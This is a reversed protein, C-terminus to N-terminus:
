GIVSFIWGVGSLEKVSRSQNAPSGTKFIVKERKEVQWPIVLEWRPPPFSPKTIDLSYGYRGGPDTHFILSLRGQRPWAM